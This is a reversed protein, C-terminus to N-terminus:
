IVDRILYAYGGEHIVRSGEPAPEPVYWRSLVDEAKPWPIIEAMGVRVKLADLKWSIVLAAMSRAGEAFNRLWVTEVMTGCDVCKDNEWYKCGCVCVSVGETANINGHEDMTTGKNEPKNM